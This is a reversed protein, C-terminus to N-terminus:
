GGPGRGTGPPLFLRLPTADSTLVARSGYRLPVAVRRGDLYLGGAMMRSTFALGERGVFGRILAYPEAGPTSQSFPERVLYQLRDDRPDMLDGGASRIAGSSGVATSVWVGSSKQEESKEGVHLIYRSTAAPVRHAVLVDNLAPDPHPVSGVVVRIRTLSVPEEAGRLVEALVGEFGDAQTRCFHGVSTSPSSNVALVPTDGVHRAVDLVTGDGGVVVVLDHRRDPIRRLRRPETVECGARRLVERVRERSQATEEHSARIKAALADGSDPPDRRQLPTRHPARHTHLLEFLSLKNWLLVLPPRGRVDLPASTEQRPGKSTM